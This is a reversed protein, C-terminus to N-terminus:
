IAKSFRVTKDGWDFYCDFVACINRVLLRGPPRVKIESEQLDILGDHAMATLANLEESFYDNFRIQYRREISPFDLRFHCI